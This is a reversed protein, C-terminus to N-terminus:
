VSDYYSILGKCYIKGAPKAAHNNLSKKLITVQNDLEKNKVNSEYSLTQKLKHFFLLDQYAGINNVFLQKDIDKAVKFILRLHEITMETKLSAMKAIELVDHQRSADIDRGFAHGVNNRLKRLAELSIINEKLVLPCAGFTKEFCAIRSNWDGKTCGIVHYDFNFPQERGYKLIEMGDIRRSAGYLVGVDSELALSIVTAMYTELNASMAMVCNLNVWNSFQNQADSWAQVDLFGTYAMEKIEPFWKEYPDSMKAGLTKGLTSYAFKSSALHSMFMNTLEANHKQFVLFPWTCDERTVWREFEVKSCSM